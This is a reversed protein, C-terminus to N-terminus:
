GRSRKLDTRLSYMFRIQCLAKREKANAKGTRAPGAAQVQKELCHNLSEANAKLSTCRTEKM